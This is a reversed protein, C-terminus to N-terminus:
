EELELIHKGDKEALKLKGLEKVDSLNFFDTTVLSINQYDEKVFTFGFTFGVQSEIKMNKSYCNLNRGDVGSGWHSVYLLEYEGDNNLDSLCTEGLSGFMYNGPLNIIEGGKYIFGGSTYGFVQMKTKEWIEDTTREYLGPIRRGFFSVRGDEAIKMPHHSIKASQKQNKIIAHLAENEIDFHYKSYVSNDDEMSYELTKDFGESKKDVEAQFENYEQAREMANKIIIVAEARTIPEDNEATFGSNESALKLARAIWASADIKIVDAKPSFVAAPSDMLVFIHNQFANQIYSYSWDDANVDRYPYLNSYDLPNDFEFACVLLKTFQERTINTDPEFYDASIGNIIGKGTLENIADAAFHNEPVDLFGASVSFVPFAFFILFTLSLLLKKM